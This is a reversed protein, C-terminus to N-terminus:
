QSAAPRNNEGPVGTEEVLSISRWSTDSINISLAMLCCLGFWGVRCIVFLSAFNPNQNPKTLTIINLAVKLLIETM